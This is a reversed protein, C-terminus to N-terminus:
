GNTKKEATPKTSEVPAAKMEKLEKAKEFEMKKKDNEKALAEARANEMQPYSIKAEAKLKKLLEDKVEGRVKFIISQKATDFNEQEIGQTVTVLYYGDKTKVPGVVEGVKANYATELIPAYGRAMLRKEDKSALGLDGGREKTIRDDSYEKALAEFKDGKDLRAKIKNTLELADKANKKKKDKKADADSVYAIQIISLRLKNFEDPNNKYYELAKEDITKDILSQAIIAKKYLEIKAKVLNDRNVGEKIAEQYLLDQDVMNDLIQKRMAPNQLRMKIQPNVDGLLEMDQATIEDGNVKVLVDGKSSSCASSIMMLLIFISSATVIKKSKM